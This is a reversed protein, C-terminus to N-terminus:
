ARRTRQPPSEARSKEIEAKGCIPVSSPATSSFALQQQRDFESAGAKGGLGHDVVESEYDELTYSGRLPDFIARVGRKVTVVACFAFCSAFLSAVLIWAIYYLALQAPSYELAASLSEQHHQHLFSGPLSSAAAGAAGSSTSAGAGSAAAGMGGMNVNGGPPGAAGGALVVDHRLQAQDLNTAIKM